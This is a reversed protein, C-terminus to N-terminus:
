AKIAPGRVAVPALHLDDRVVEIPNTRAKRPQNFIEFLLLRRDDAELLDLAIVVAKRDTLDLLGPELANPM